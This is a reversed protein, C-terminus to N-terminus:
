CGGVWGVIQDLIADFRAAQADRSLGGVKLSHDGNEMALVTTRAALAALIPELEAPTGFADRAGQVFLM